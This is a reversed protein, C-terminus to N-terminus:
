EENELVGRLLNRAECLHNRITSHPKRLIGAVEESTYGEYYYLYIVDKYRTPLEMVAKLTEDIHFPDDSQLNGYDDIDARSRWWHSLYDKCTNITTRILWAKEHEANQFVISKQMLKAFVDVAADETDSTNKLYSFSIRYVMDFHRRYIEEINQLSSGEGRAPLPKIM